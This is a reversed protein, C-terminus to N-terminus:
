HAMSLAFVSAKVGPSQLLAQICAELTSGTTIVDDVLLVHKHAFALPDTLAFVGQMNLYRCMSDFQIRVADMTWDQRDASAAILVAGTNRTRLSSSFSYFRDIVTKLQASIGCFYVPTVFVVLDSSMVKARISKMDDDQICPGSTGCANCARCMGVKLRVVEVVEVTHGAEVAGEVFRNAITSSAGKLHPSGEIVTIQM